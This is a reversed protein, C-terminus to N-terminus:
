YNDFIRELTRIDKNTLQKETFRHEKYDLKLIDAILGKKYKQMATLEVKLNEQEWKTNEARHEAWVKKEQSTMGFVTQNLNEMKREEIRKKTCM